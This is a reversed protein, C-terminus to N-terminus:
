LLSMVKELTYKVYGARGFTEIRFPKDKFIWTQKFKLLKNVYNKNGCKKNVIKKAIPNISLHFQQKPQIM